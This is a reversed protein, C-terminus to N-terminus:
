LRSRAHLGGDQFGRLLSLFRFVCISRARDRRKCLTSTPSLAHMYQATALSSLSFRRIALLRMQAAQSDMSHVKQM